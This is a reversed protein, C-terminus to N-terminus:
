VVLDQYPTQETDRRRTFRCRRRQLFASGAAGRIRTALWRM